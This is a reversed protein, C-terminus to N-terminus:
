VGINLDQDGDNNWDSIYWGDPILGLNTLRMNITYTKGSELTTASPISYEFRSGYVTVAFFITGDAVSQPAVVAYSSIRWDTTMKSIMSIDTTESANTSVSLGQMDFSVSSKVNLLQVKIKNLNLEGTEDVVHIAVKAMLHKLEITTQQSNLEGAMLDSAVYGEATSQDSLVTFTPPTTLSAMGWNDQYPTYAFATLLSKNNSILATKDTGVTATQFNVGGDKDLLYAGVTSGPTLESSYGDDDAAVITINSEEGDIYEYQKKKHCSTMLLTVCLLASLTNILKSLPLSRKM